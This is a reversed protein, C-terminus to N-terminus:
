PTGATAAAPASRFADSVVFEAVFDRWVYGKSALTQSLAKIQAADVSYDEVGNANRYFNNLLCTLVRESKAFV